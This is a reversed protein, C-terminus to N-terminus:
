LLLGVGASFGNAALSIALAESARLPRCAQRSRSAAFLLLAEALTVALEVGIFVGPFPKAAGMITSWALALARWVIAM